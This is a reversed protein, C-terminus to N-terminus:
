MMVNAIEDVKFYKKAREIMLEIDSRLTHPFIEEGARNYLAWSKAKILAEEKAGRKTFPKDELNKHYLSWGITVRENEKVALVCGIPTPDKCQWQGNTGIIQKSNKRKYKIYTTQPKTEEGIEEYKFGYIFSKEHEEGNEYIKNKWLVDGSFWDGDEWKELYEDLEGIQGIINKRNSYHASREHVDTVRVKM